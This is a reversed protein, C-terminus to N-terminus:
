WFTGAPHDLNIAPIPFSTPSQWSFVFPPLYFPLRMEQLMWINWTNNPLAEQQATMTHREITHLCGPTTHHSTHHLNHTVNRTEQNMTWQVACNSNCFNLVSSMSVMMRHVLHFVSSADSYQIYAAKRWILANCCVCKSAWMQSM